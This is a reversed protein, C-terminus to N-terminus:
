NGVTVFRSDGKVTIERKDESIKEIGIFITSNPLFESINESWEIVIVSSDDDLYDYFGTSELAEENTIRYMDFHYLTINKGRYENVLSFTPSCVEDDLGMGLAIGRTLTTKGAGLDGTYALVDGSKLKEGIKKGINITEDPSDSVMRIDM